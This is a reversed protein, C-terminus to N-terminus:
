YMTAAAAIRERRTQDDSTMQNESLVVDQKEQTDREFKITQCSPFTKSSM